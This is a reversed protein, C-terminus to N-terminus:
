PVVGPIRLKLSFACSSKVLKERPGVSFLGSLPQGFLYTNRRDPYDLGTGIPFELDIQAVLAPLSVRM